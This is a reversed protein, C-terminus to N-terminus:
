DVQAFCPLADEGYSSVVPRLRTVLVRLGDVVGSPEYRERLFTSLVPYDQYFSEPPDPLLVLPVSEGRMRGVMERQEEPSTYFGNFFSAQGGAFSRRSYYQVEPLHVGILVRDTQSTCARLYGAIPMDSPVMDPQQRLSAVNARTAGVLGGVGEDRVLSVRAPGEGSVYGAWATVVVVAGVALRCALRRSDARWLQTGLWAGLIGPLTAADPVRAAIPFRIFFLNVVIATVALAALVADFAEPRVRVGGRRSMGLWLLVGFPVTMLVWYLWFVANQATLVGPLVRFEDWWMERPINGTGRDFGNTDVVVPDAATRRLAEPRRDVNYAWVSPDTREGERLGLELEKRARVIPDLDDAWRVSIRLDSPPWVVLPSWAFDSSPLRPRTADVEHTTLTLCRRVYDVLGVERQVIVLGPLVLIFATAGIRLALRASAQLGLAPVRGLVFVGVGIAAYVAMDHRILFAAAVVAGVLMSPLLPRSSRALWVMASALGALILLKPYAYLRPSLLIQFVVVGLAALASVGLRRTAMYTLVAAIWFVGLSLAVEAFLNDGLLIVSFAPALYSLPPWVGRLEYDVFDLLPLRGQLIESARVLVPFHDNHLSGLNGSLGPLRLSAVLALLGIAVVIHVAGSGRLRQPCM